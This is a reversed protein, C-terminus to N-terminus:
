SIQNTNDPLWRKFDIAANISIRDPFVGTPDINAEGKTRRVQWRGMPDDNHLVFGIADIRM